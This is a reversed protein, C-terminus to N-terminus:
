SGALRRRVRPVTVVLSLAVLTALMSAPIAVIPTAGHKVAIGIYAWVIVAIYTIDGRTYSVALAVGAAVILMILAWVEPAIGWGNWNLYDLLSTVNAVTAVTIWGLYLSFPFHVSWRESAAPHRRGIGLLLYIAVLSGLLVLMAIITLPFVEYHWLFIWAINAVASLAYLYGIRERIAVSHPTLQYITFALLALYILGWISFVYGAPVFYVDFRDSIQGTNLGNLPLANALINVVIMIVTTGVNVWKLVNANKM